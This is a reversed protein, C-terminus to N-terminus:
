LALADDDVAHKESIEHGYGCLALLYIREQPDLQMASCVREVFRLSFHHSTGREFQTYWMSSVGILEAAEDRNIGTCRRKRRKPLGVADPTIRNRCQRLFARREDSLLTTAELVLM